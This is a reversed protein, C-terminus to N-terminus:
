IILRIIGSANFQAPSSISPSSPNGRAYDLSVSRISIARAALSVRVMRLPRPTRRIQQRSTTDTTGTCGAATTCSPGLVFFNTFTQPSSSGVVANGYYLEDESGVVQDTLAESASSARKSLLKSYTPLVSNSRYKILTRNLSTFFSATHVQPNIPTLVSRHGDDHTFAFTM